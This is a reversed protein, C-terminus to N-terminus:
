VFYAKIDGSAMARDFPKGLLNGREFNDREMPFFYVADEELHMTDKIELKLEDLQNHNLRGVYVSKQVRFLGGRLCIKAIKALRKPQAIDYMVWVIM